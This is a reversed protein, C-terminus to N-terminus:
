KFLVKGTQAYHQKMAELMAHYRHRSEILCGMLLHRQAKNPSLRYEFTRM